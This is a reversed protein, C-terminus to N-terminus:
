DLEISIHERHSKAKSVLKKYVMAGAIGAAALVTVLSVLYMEHPINLYLINRLIIDLPTFSFIGILGMIFGHSSPSLSFSYLALVLLYNIGMYGLVLALAGRLDELAIFATNVAIGLLMFFAFFWKISQCLLTNEGLLVSALLAPIWFILYRSISKSM